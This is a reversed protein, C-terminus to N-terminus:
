RNTRPVPGRRPSREARVGRRRLKSSAERWILSARAHRGDVVESGPDHAEGRVIGQGGQVAFNSRLRWSLPSVPDQPIASAGRPAWFGGRAPGDGSDISPTRLRAGGGRERRELLARRAERASCPSARPLPANPHGSAVVHGHGHGHGPSLSHYRPSSYCTVTTSVEREM